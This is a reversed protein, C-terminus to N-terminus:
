LFAAIFRSGEFIRLAAIVILVQKEINKKEEEDQEKAWADFADEVVAFDQWDKPTMRHINKMNWEVAKIYRTFIKKMSKSM